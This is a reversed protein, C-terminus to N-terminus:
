VVWPLHCNTNEEGHNIRAEETKKEENLDIPLYHM